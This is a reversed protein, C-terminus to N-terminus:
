CPPLSGFEVQKSEIKSIEIHRVAGVRHAVFEELLLPGVSKGITPLVLFVQTTNRYNPQVLSLDDCLCISMSKGSPTIVILGMGEPTPALLLVWAAPMSLSKLVGDLAWYGSGRISTDEDYNSQSWLADRLAKRYDSDWFAPVCIKSGLGLAIKCLWRRESNIDLVIRNQINAGEASANKFIEVAQLDRTVCDSDKPPDIFRTPNNGDFVFNMAYLRAKPFQAEVSRFTAIAWDTDKSCLSVYVRDDNKKRSPRGGAYTKWDHHSDDTWFHLVHAGCPGIWVDIITKGEQGLNQAQGIYVLPLISRSSPQLDAYEYSGHFREMAGAYGKLFAGDVFIGLTSNCSRCVNKSRFLELLLYGGLASPWIHELTFANSQTPKRDCYICIETDEPM